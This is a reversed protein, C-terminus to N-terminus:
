LLLGVHRNVEELLAKKELTTKDLKRQTKAQKQELVEKEELALELAQRLERIQRNRVWDAWTQFSANVAKNLWSLMVKRSLTSAAANKMRFLQERLEENEQALGKRRTGEFVAKWHTFIEALVGLAWSTFTRRAFSEAAKLQVLWLSQRLRDKENAESLLKGGFVITKWHNFCEMQAGYRMSQMAKKAFNDAASRQMLWLRDRLAKCEAAARLAAAVMMTLLEQPPFKAHPSLEKRDDKPTGKREDLSYQEEEYYSEYGDDDSAGDSDGCPESIPLDAGLVDTFSRDIRWTV